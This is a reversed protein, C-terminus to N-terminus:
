GQKPSLEEPMISVMKSTSCKIALSRATSDPRPSDVPAEVKKMMKEAKVGSIFKNYMM